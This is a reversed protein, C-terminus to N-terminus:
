EDEQIDLNGVKAIPKLRLIGRYSSKLPPLCRVEPNTGTYQKNMWDDLGYQLVLPDGEVILDKVRYQKTKDPCYWEEDGRLVNLITREEQVM